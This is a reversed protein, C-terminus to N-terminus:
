HFGRSTTVSADAASGEVVSGGEGELIGMGGEGEFIGTGGTGWGGGSGSEM